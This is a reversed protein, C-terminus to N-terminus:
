PKRGATAAVAALPKPLDDPELHSFYSVVATWVVDTLNVVLVRLRLPLCRNTPQNIPQNTLPTMQTPEPRTQISNFLIAYFLLGSKIPCPNNIDTKPPRPSLVAPSMGFLVFFCRVSNFFITTRGRFFFSSVIVGDMLGSFHLCFFSQARVCRFTAFELPLFLLSVMWGGRLAPWYERRVQPVIERTLHKGEIAGCLFFFGLVFLPDFIFEDVAVHTLAALAGGQAPALRELTSYLFHLGPGTIAIGEVTVALCRLPVLKLPPAEEGAKLKRCHLKHEFVQACMDGVLAIVGATIAKTVVPKSELLEAYQGWLSKFTGLAAVLLVGGPHQQQHDNGGGGGGNAEGGGGGGGIIGDDGGGGSVGGGGGRVLGLGGAGM